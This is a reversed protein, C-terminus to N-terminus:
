YGNVDGLDIGWGTAAQCKFDILQADDEKENAGPCILVHPYYFKSESNSHTFHVEQTTEPAMRKALPLYISYLCAFVVAIVAFSNVFEGFVHAPVPPGFCCFQKFEGAKEYGADGAKDPILLACGFLAQRMMHRFGGLGSNQKTLNKESPSRTTSPDSDIELNHLDKNVPNATRTSM